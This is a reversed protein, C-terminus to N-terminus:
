TCQWRAHKCARHLSCAHTPCNAPSLYALMWPAAMRCCVCPTHHWDHAWQGSLWDHVCEHMMGRVGDCAQLGDCACSACQLYTRPVRRLLAVDAHMYMCVLRSEQVWRCTTISAFVACCCCGWLLLRLYWCSAYLCRSQFVCCALAHVCAHLWRRFIAGHPWGRCTLSMGGGCALMQEGVHRNRGCKDRLEHEASGAVCSAGGGKFLLQGLATNSPRQGCSSVHICCVWSHYKSSGNFACM